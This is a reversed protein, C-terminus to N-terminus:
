FKNFFLSEMRNVEIPDIVANTKLYEDVVYYARQLNFDLLNINRNSMHALKLHVISLLIVSFLATSYTMTMNISM